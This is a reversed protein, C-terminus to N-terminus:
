GHKDAATTEGAAKDLPERIRQLLDTREDPTLPVVTLDITKDAVTVRTVKVPFAHNPHFSDHPLFLIPDAPEDNLAHLLLKNMEAAAAEKNMSGDDALSASQRTQDLKSEMAGSLKQVYGNYMSRPLPLKGGMVRVLALHLEGDPDLKPEFHLSVLTDAEKVNGALIIRNDQLVLVPDQVYQGYRGKWQMQEGWKAFLANLEAESLSIRMAQDPAPEYGPMGPKIGSKQQLEAGKTRSAWNHVGALKDEVSLSAARMTADDLAKVPYWDPKSRALRHVVLGSAAALLVLVLLTALLRKIWKM